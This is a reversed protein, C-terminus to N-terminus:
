RGRRAMRVLLERGSIGATKGAPPQRAEPEGEPECEPLARLSPYRKREGTEGKIGVGGWAATICILESTM